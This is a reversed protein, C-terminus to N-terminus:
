PTAGYTPGPLRRLAAREGSTGAGTSRKHHHACYRPQGDAQAAHTAPAGCFRVDGPDDIDMPWRCRCGKLADLAEGLTAFRLPTPPAPPVPPAPAAAVPLPRQPAKPKPRPEAKATPPAVPVPEPRVVPTGQKKMRNLRGIVSNRTIGLRVAVRAASLGEATLKLLLDVREPSWDSRQQNSLGGM